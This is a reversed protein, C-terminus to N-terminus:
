RLDMLGTFFLISYNLGHDLEYLAELNVKKNGRVTSYRYAIIRFEPAFM